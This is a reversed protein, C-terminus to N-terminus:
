EFDWISSDTTKPKEDESQVNMEAIPKSPQVERDDNFSLDNMVDEGLMSNAYESCLNTAKFALEAMKPHKEQLRQSNDIFANDVKNVYHQIAPNSSESLKKSIFNATQGGVIGNLAGKAVEDFLGM